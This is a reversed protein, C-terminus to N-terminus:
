YCFQELSGADRWIRASYWPDVWFSPLFVFLPWCMSQGASYLKVMMFRLSVVACLKRWGFMALFPHKNVSQIITEMVVSAVILCTCDWKWVHVHNMLGAPSQQHYILLSINLAVWLRYIQKKDLIFCFLLTIPPVAM